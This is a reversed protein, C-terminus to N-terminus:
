AGAVPGADGLFDAGLHEKIFATEKESKDQLITMIEDPLKQKSGVFVEREPASYSHESLGVHKEVDLLLGRPDKRINGFPFYRILQKPYNEEWMPISKSYMGRKLAKRVASKWIEIPASELSIGKQACQRQAVMRTSSVNRSLPDRIMFIIPVEGVVARLDKIGDAPLIEYSPSFDCVKKGKEGSMALNYWKESLFTDEKLMEEILALRSRTWANKWKKNKLGNRRVQLSSM